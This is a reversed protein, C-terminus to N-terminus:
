HDYVYQGIRGVREIEEKRMPGLEMLALNERMQSVNKVGMMCIDISPNSLVYRYCDSASLADEGQPMNKPNLLKGWRTATFSVIGPRGHDKYFPFIETEAGRHAANYRIHLVDIDPTKTLERFMKRNHGSIGLHKVMGKEKLKRAGDLIRQSPVKPFYGLLLIDIYELGLAKLRKKLFYRTLFPDHAYTFVSIVLQDRKGKAILNHIAKKMEGSDGKIFTGWTFYNCGYEFAEEFAEAPAGYSSSIGMRGVKLGTRGLNIKESFNM